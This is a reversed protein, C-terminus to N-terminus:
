EFRFVIVFSPEIHIARGTDNLWAAVKSILTHDEGLRGNPIQQDFSIRAVEGRTGFQFYVMTNDAAQKTWKSGEPATTRLGWLVGATKGPEVSGVPWAIADGYVRVVRVRCGEPPEFVIAHEVAGATGWTYLRTDPVGTIDDAQNTAVSMEGYSACNPSPADSALAYTLLIPILFM